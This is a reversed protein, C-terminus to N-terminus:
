AAEKKEQEKMLEKIRSLAAAKSGLNREIIEHDSERGVCWDWSPGMYKAYYKDNAMSGTKVGDHLKYHTLQKVIAFSPAVELVYYEAYFSHDEARVEVINGKRLRRCVNAWYAPTLLDDLNHTHPLNVAWRMHAAPAEAFRGMPLSVVRNEGKEQNETM